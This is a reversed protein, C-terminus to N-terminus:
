NLTAYIEEENIIVLGNDADVEVGAYAGFIVEQELKVSMQAFEGNGLRKGPGVAKVVGKRFKKDIANPLHIGSKTKNELKDVQVLVRDLQPKVKEIELEM